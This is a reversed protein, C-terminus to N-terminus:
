TTTRAPPSVLLSQTLPVYARIGVGDDISGLVRVIGGRKYDWFFQIEVQYNAGSAGRIEFNEVRRSEVLPVLESYSGFRALQEGLIKQAESKDM